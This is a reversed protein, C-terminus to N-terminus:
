RELAAAPGLRKLAEQAVWHLSQDPASIQCVFYGDIVTTERVVSIHSAPIRKGDDLRIATVPRVVTGIKLPKPKLFWMGILTIPGLLFAIIMFIRDDYGKRRADWAAALGAAVYLVIILVEYM